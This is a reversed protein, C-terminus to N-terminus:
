QTESVKLNNLTSATLYLNVPMGEKNIFDWATKWDSTNMKKLDLTNITMMEDVIKTVRRSNLREGFYIDYRKIGGKEGHLKFTLGKENEEYEAFKFLLGKGAKIVNGTMEGKALLQTDPFYIVVAVENNGATAKLVQVGYTMEQGCRSDIGFSGGYIKNFYSDTLPTNGAKQTKKEQVWGAPIKLWGSKEQLVPQAFPYPYSKGIFANMFLAETDNSVYGSSMSADKYIKTEPSLEIARTKNQGFCYPTLAGLIVVLLFFRKM